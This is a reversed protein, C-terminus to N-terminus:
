CWSKLLWMLWMKAIKRLLLLLSHLKSVGITVGISYLIKSDRIFIFDKFYQGNIQYV